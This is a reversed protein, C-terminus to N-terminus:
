WIAVELKLSRSKPKESISTLSLRASVTLVIKYWYWYIFKNTELAVPVSCCTYNTFLCIRMGKKDLHWWISFSSFSCVEPRLNVMSFITKIYAPCPDLLADDLLCRCNKTFNPFHLSTWAFDAFLIQIALIWFIIM